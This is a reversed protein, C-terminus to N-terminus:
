AWTCLGRLAASAKAANEPTFLKEGDKGDKPPTKVTLYPELLEITEENINDKENDSFDILQKLLPGQLKRSTHDDYSDQIFPTVAKIMNYDRPGVPNMSDQFLINVTDFILRTTDTANRTGKLEVIDAPKISAVADKAKELAPMAAALEKDAQEKEITIVNKQAICADTVAAVESAKIDAKKNEIELESLLAATQDAAVKLTADEKKLAIKLEDIGRTAEALKELGNNINQEEVDIGKYKKVYVDQYMAIFSLYSKPTVYVYRRMQQYYIGCVETVLQHVKGMHIILQDKVSQPNDIKFSNLFKDSVSILAEEPWPLFWDINCQSFLSPFKQARTRFKTGVPSFCLVTHLNDKVRNIFYQWLLLTSPDEGKTGAEKMYVNKQQLPILDRDEKVFLGPIEGTALMSNVAELFTEYKIEADTLIFTVAGGAPGAINYLEKVNEKFHQDGYSKNLTIQFFTQRCVFSALKTLSQKGSGGVGVLLANGGATNIIRAIKLLHFLADDFIVLSMKKAPFKENYADLKTNALKRITELDPCAEYVFPAISVLEGYEDYIDKRQFDAFLM